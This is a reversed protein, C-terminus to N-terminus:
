NRLMDYFLHKPESKISKKKGGRRQGDSNAGSQLLWRKVSLKIKAASSEDIALRTFKNKCVNSLLSVIIRWDSEIRSNETQLDRFDHRAIAAGILLM